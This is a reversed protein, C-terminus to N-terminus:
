QWATASTPTARCPKWFDMPNDPMWSGGNNTSYLRGIPVGDALPLTPVTLFYSGIPINPAFLSLGFGQHGNYPQGEPRNDRPMLTYPTKEECNITLQLTATPLGTPKDPFLETLPVDGYDVIGNASLSPECAGPTIFGTVTLETDSAAQASPTGIILWATAIASLRAKIKM